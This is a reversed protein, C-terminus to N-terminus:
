PHPACASCKTSHEPEQLRYTISCLLRSVLFLSCIVLLLADDHLSVFSNWGPGSHLCQLLSEMAAEYEVLVDVNCILFRDMSLRLLTRAAYDAADLSLNEATKDLFTFFYQLSTWDHGQYFDESQRSVTDRTERPITEDAAGLEVLMRRLRDTTVLSEVQGPCCSLSNVYENLFLRSSQRPLDDLIWEFVEEPLERRKQSIVHLWRSAVYQERVHPDEHVLPKWSGKKLTKPIAVPEPQKFQTKFFRFHPTTHDGARHVARMVKHANAGGQDQVIDKITTDVDVTRAAEEEEAEAVLEQLQASSANTADDAKADRALAKMDFMFKPKTNITLPSSHFANMTRKAKPTEFSRTAAAATSNGRDFTAM